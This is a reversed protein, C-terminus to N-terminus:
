GGRKKRRYETACKQHAVNSLGGATYLNKPDDWQKCFKCKMWDAHGCSDYARTRRHLLHHYSADPCVVLNENRNDNRVSNVHHIEAGDPLRYGVIKEVKEIHIKIKKGHSERVEYGNHLM